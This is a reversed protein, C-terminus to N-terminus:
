QVVRVLRSPATPTNVVIDTFPGSGCATLCSYQISTQAADIASINAGLDAGDSAQSAQGARFSSGSALAYGHYDSLNFSLSGTSLGGAFGICTPDPSAGSCYPTQTGWITSITTQTGITDWEAYCAAMGGAAPTTHGPCVVLSDRSTYANHHYTLSTGDFGKTLTRTGEGFGSNPGGGVAIGNTFTLNRSLEQIAQGGVNYPSAAGANLVETNHDYTLYRPWGQINNFTCGASSASATGVNSYIVTLNGPLTGSLALTFGTTPTNFTTDTCTTVSVPDGVNMNSQTIGAASTLTCTSTLGAGDRTCSAAWTNGDNNSIRFGMIPSVSGCGPNALDINYTLNNKWIALQTPLTVGGGVDTANTSRFGWSGGECSNRMINNTFTLNENTFWFNGQGGGGANSVKWSLSIGSQGGTNDVNENINGDYVVREAVKQEHSNKRAYGNGSCSLGNVCFGADGALMWSYPYTYRNGRDEVDTGPVFNPITITDSVGGAFLGISAGEVWNHVIKIQQAYELLIVHGEAGPRIIGDMYSYALSCNNCAAFYIGNPIHNAGTPGATAVGGSLPADTWDGHIYDYAFHIHAPLQSIATETQQGIKVPAGTSSLGALPRVEANVIAFHHPSIGNADQAATTIGSCNAQTCQITWMSAVDNYTSTNTAKGNALTFAGSVNTITSGLQYNMSAGSCGLNRIGPKTSTALNDQIGHSCVTQGAPLPTSSTLVIFATSADGVTQPLVIGTTASFLAGAPFVIQALVPLATTTATRCAEADAIVQSLSAMSNATYPGYTTSNATCTWGGGTGVSPFTITYLATGIYETNKVWSTPLSVTQAMAGLSLLFVVFLKRM